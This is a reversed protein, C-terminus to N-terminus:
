PLPVSLTFPVVVTGHDIDASIRVHLPEPPPTALDLVLTDGEVTRDATAFETGAADSLGPDLDHAQGPPGTIRLRAAAPTDGAAAQEEATLPSLTFLWPVGGATIRRMGGLVITTDIAVPDGIRAQLMGSLTAVGPGDPLHRLLCAATPADEGPDGGDDDSDGDEVTAVLGGDMRAESAWLIEVGDTAAGLRPEPDIRLRVDARRDLGAATRVSRRRVEGIRILWPGAAAGETSGPVLGTAQGPTQAPQVAYGWTRAVLLVGGWWPGDWPPLERVRTGDAGFPLVLRNGGAQLAAVAATLTRPGGPWAVRAATHQARTASPRALGEPLPALDVPGPALSRDGAPRTGHIRVLLPAAPLDVFTFTMAMGDRHRERRVADPRVADDEPGFAIEDLLRSQNRVAAFSVSVTEGNREMVVPGDPLAIRLRDGPALAGSATWPNVLRLDVMALVAGEPGLLVVGDEPGPLGEGPESRRLFAGGEGSRAFRPEVRALVRGRLTTARETTEIEPEPWEILCPGAAARLPRRGPALVPPAGTTGLRWTQVGSGDAQELWDRSGDEVGEPPLLDVGWTRAVLLVGDWWLGDVAPLDRVATRDLDEGLIVQNGEVALRAAAEALTTPGAAWRVPTGQLRRAAEMPGIADAGPATGALALALVLAPVLMRRM